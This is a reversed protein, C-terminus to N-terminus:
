WGLSFNHSQDTKGPRRDYKAQLQTNLLHNNLLNVFLRTLRAKWLYFSPFLLPHIVQTMLKM